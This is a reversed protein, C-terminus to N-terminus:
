KWKTLKERLRVNDRYRFYIKEKINQRHKLRLRDPIDLERNKSTFLGNKCNEKRRKLGVKFGLTSQCRQEFIQTHPVMPSPDGEGMYVGPSQQGGYM